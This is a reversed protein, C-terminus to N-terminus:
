SHETYIYIYLSHSGPNLTKSSSLANHHVACITVYDMVHLLPNRKSGATEVGTPRGPGSCVQLDHLTNQGLVVNLIEGCASRPVLGLYSLAKEAPYM